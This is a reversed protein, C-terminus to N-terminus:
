AVSVRAARANVSSPTSETASALTISRNRSAGASVAASEFRLPGGVCLVPSRIVVTRCRAGAVRGRAGARGRPLVCDLLWVGPSGLATRDVRGRHALSAGLLGGVPRLGGAVAVESRRPVSIAPQPRKGMTAWGATQIPCGREARLPLRAPTVGQPTFCDYGAKTVAKTSVQRPQRVPM